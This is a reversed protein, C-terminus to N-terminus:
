GNNDMITPPEGGQPQPQPQPTQQQTNQRQQTEPPAETEPEPAGASVTLRIETGEPIREGSAISQSMVMGEPVEASSEKTVACSLGAADLLQKAAEVTGDVVQPVITRERGASVTTVVVSGATTNDVVAEHATIISNEPESSYITEKRALYFGEESAIKLADDWTKGTVLQADEDTASRAGDVGTSLTVVISDGTNVATEAAPEQSIACGPRIYSPSPDERFQAKFGDELLKSEIEERSLGTVYPAYTGEIGASLVVEVTIGQDAISGASVSQSLIRSIPITDSYEKDVIQIEFGDEKAREMADNVSSNVLNPILIKGDELTNAKPGALDVKLAGTGIYIGLGVIVVAAIPILVKLVLPMSGIDKKQKSIRKRKTDASELQSLFDFASQTRDEPEICLANMLANEVNRSIRAGLRSPPVLRDKEKREISGQPVHGTLMRYFTAAAAYVDTWPGQNGHRKYQEIPSYGPKIEVTLSRTRGSMVTRASGFDFLKVSGDDMLFINDPAMDRHLMHNAHVKILGRLVEKIIEAAEETRITKERKLRKKLTEGKLYEMAIYATNNEEFYDIVRVIEKENRLAALKMAEDVFSKRGKEFQHTEDGTYITVNRDGAARMALDGPLYEKIAIVDDLMMDYGIYTIGFGGAGLVKGM